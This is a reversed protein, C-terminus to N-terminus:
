GQGPGRLDAVLAVLRRRLEVPDVGMLVADEYAERLVSELETWNEDLVKLKERCSIPSGDPQLWSRAPGKAEEAM